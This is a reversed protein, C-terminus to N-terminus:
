ETPKLSVADFITFEEVAIDRLFDIDKEDEIRWSSPAPKSFESRLSFM